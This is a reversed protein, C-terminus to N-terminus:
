VEITQLSLHKIELNSTTCLIGWAASRKEALSQALLAFPPPGPPRTSSWIAENKAYLHPEPQHNWVHKKGMYQPYLLGLQSEYKESTNFVGVLTYLPIKHPNHLCLEHNIILEPIINGM